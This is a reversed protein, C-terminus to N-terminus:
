GIYLFLDALGLLLNLWVNLSYSIKNIFIYKMNESFQLNAPWHILPVEM